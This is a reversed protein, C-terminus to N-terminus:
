VRRRPFDDGVATRDDTVAVDHDASHRLSRGSAELYFHASLAFGCPGAEDTEVRLVIGEGYLQVGPYTEKPGTLTVQLQVKAGGPIYLKSSEVFAGSSGIERTVGYGIEM